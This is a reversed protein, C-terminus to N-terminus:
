ECYTIATLGVGLEVVDAVLVAVGETVPVPVPVNVTVPVAVTVKDMDWVGVIVSVNETVCVDVRDGAQVKVTV